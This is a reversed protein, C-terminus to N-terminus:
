DKKKLAEIVREMRVSRSAKFLVTDNACLMKKLIDTSAVLADVDRYECIHESPMGAARAGRAILAGGKGVAVLAEVGHEAAYVGVAHHLDDSTVGLELMDGLVAVSRGDGRRACGTLVDIAARMSEPSANYCDEILTWAGHRVIMQRMGSPLYSLLGERIHEPSMGSVTGVAFAFLAAYVNHKGQVRIHLDRCAGQRCIADFHTGDEEIRINEAYFDADSHEISVTVTRCGDKKADRLLPEDGNIMLIGGASLGATIELKARCINERSGLMEMHSTGINTIVAIDPMACLSMREIEGFGSMGMELVALSHAHGIEMVSLPMGIVSNHNGGSRYVCAHASLVSAIMEKTTTKGVSGTVAVTRCSLMKKYTNALRLLAAETDPVILGIADTACERECLVCRCGRLTAADIYDHGDVREGRLAVFLTSADAERSDTCIGCIRVDADAGILTAGCIRAIDRATLEAQTTIRM